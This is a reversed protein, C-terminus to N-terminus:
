EKMMAAVAAKAAAEDALRPALAAVLAAATEAAVAEVAEAASAGIAEIRAQGEAARAAIREDAKAVAAEYDKRVADKAAQAIAQAKARADALAKEYAAEAEAAQRRYGSARDLDDAITDSREEIAGAIRPLAINKLILYLAVLSVALWFIQSSWTSFDLQPMGGEHGGQEAALAPLASLSLGAGLFWRVM